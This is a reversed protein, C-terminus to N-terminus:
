VRGKLRELRNRISQCAYFHLSIDSCEYISSYVSPEKLHGGCTSALPNFKPSCPPQVEVFLDERVYSLIFKKKTERHPSAAQIVSSVGQINVSLM